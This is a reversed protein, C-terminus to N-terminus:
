LENNWGVRKSINFFSGVSSKELRKMRDLWYKGTEDQFWPDGIKSFRWRYLLKQLSLGDIYKKREKTLIM